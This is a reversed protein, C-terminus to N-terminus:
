DMETEKRIGSTETEEAMRKWIDDQPIGPMQRYKMQPDHGTFRCVAKMACYTCADTRDNEKLPSPAIEGGLIREGTEIMKRRAYASLLSLKRADAVSSRAASISGDKNVTVPAVESLLGPDSSFLSVAERDDLLLGSPRIKRAREAELSADDLEAYRGDLVPDRVPFYLLGACVVEKKRHRQREMRLAADMYVPLQLETGMWVENLDFGTAGTKYDVVKIFLRSDERGPAEDVRDIRGTLNMRSGDSFLLPEATRRDRSDFRTEFLAPEFDGAALQLKLVAAAHRFIRLLRQYQGASRFTDEFKGGSTELCAQRLSEEAWRNLAEPALTRWSVDRSEKVRASLLELGRHMLTGVDSAQVEFRRRERLGLGYVTYQRFPCLAFTELRSVSGELNDGYLKRAVERSLRPPPVIDLAKLLRRTQEPRGSASALYLERLMPTREEKEAETWDRSEALAGALAEPVEKPLYITGALGGPLGEQIEIQPFLRCIQLLAAAPRLVSGDMTTKSCSLILRDSPKTLSLYLYFQRVAAEERASPALHFEQRRLYEREVDTLIGGEHSRGPVFEDNMGLFLIARVNTIRSRMLDGIQVEDIGPPVIGIKAESLGAELIQEFQSRRIKEDGLLSVAEDLVEAIASAAQSYIESDARQGNEERERALLALKGQLDFADTLEWLARAYDKLKGTSFRCVGAFPEFREAFAERLEELEAIEEERGDGAPRSWRQTWAKHGRIGAALLYNELIDVTERDDFVFGTRFFAMMSEYSYNADLIAFAARVFEFAPNLTVPVSRDVFYPIEARSFARRLHEVYTPFDGAVVAIDRYRLTNEHGGEQGDGGNENTRTLRRIWAVAAQAEEAPNACSLIQIQHRDNQGPFPNRRGPRLLNAELYQLESGEGFRGTGSQKMLLPPDMVTGTEAAIRGLAQVTKKTLAFLEEERPRSFADTGADITFAATVREAKRMLGSLVDMQAPTFGTFGDLYIRSRELMRSAPIRGCLAEPVTEVTQLQHVEQFQRYKERLVSLQELKQALVPRASCESVMRQIEEDTMEYQDMESLISKLEGLVGPRDVAGSLLSLGAAERDAILRLLLTKGTERLLTKRRVGTEEFVRVALRSFSLIDINLIGGSQSLACLSQQTQMTFQEPVLIIHQRGPNQAADELAKEFLKRSKGCGSPGLILKLSM